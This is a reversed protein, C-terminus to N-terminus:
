PPPEVGAGNKADGVVDGGWVATGTSGGGKFFDGVSEQRGGGQEPDAATTGLKETGEGPKRGGSAM